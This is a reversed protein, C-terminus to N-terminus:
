QLVDEAQHRIPEPLRDIPHGAAHVGLARVYAVIAWREIPDTEHIYTPMLGYGEAIVTYIRGDPFQRVRDTLLSPPPRLTMKRAVVSVGNGLVGHCPACFVEFRRRGMEVFQTTLLVPNKDVYVGDVLGRELAVPLQSGDATLTGDPPHQMARGDPFFESEKYPLFYAQNVMREFDREPGSNECGLFVGLCPVILPWSHMAVKMFRKGM